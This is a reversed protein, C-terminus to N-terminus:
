KKIKRDFNKSTIPHCHGTLVFYANLMSSKDKDTIVENGDLPPTSGSTQVQQRSILDLAHQVSVLSWCDVASYWESSDMGERGGGKEHEHSEVPCSHDETVTLSYYATCDFVIDRQLRIQSSCHKCHARELVLAPPQKM